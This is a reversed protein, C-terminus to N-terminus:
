LTHLYLIHFHTWKTASNLSAADVGFWWGGL